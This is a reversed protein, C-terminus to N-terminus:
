MKEPAAVGLLGLAIELVQRVARVTFLRARTLSEDDTVVRCDRYFAHFLAALDEAYGTLRHPARRVACFEVVEELEALKRLLDMEPETQLLRVEEPAPDSLDAGGEAAYRLISCIRAHAYQVYFVPNEPTERKALEIDFDLPSDASRQLFMYRSADAGVENLLEELTVIEGTRKSMAVPEGGRFLKVLQGLIVELNDASYGMLEMAAKMRPVYGHHDAGWIDIITQFGRRIKDHHYAIDSAFYTPEGSSRVLVRDKEDGYDSTKLWLAGERRYAKGEKELEAMTADVEGNRYLDRESFWVDFAVGMEALTRRISALMGPYEMEVFASAREDEPLDAFEEGHERVLREAIEVVYQGAYGGEPLEANRGLLELYRASISRGFNSMQTGYDNVYFEREILYGAHSMVNALADGFAAWRGHGVHLPGVPNASVFEVQVKRGAGIDSAGFREGKEEVEYLVNRVFDDTLHFNIFGPGAVEVKSVVDPAEDMSEVIIRAVERSDLEARGAVALAVNTAWDGHEKRKPRDLEIRGVEISPLSGDAIARQLASQILGTIQEKSM